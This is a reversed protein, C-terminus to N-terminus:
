MHIHGVNHACIITKLTHMLHTLDLVSEGAIGDIYCYDPAIFDRPAASTTLM